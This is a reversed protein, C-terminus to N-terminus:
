VVCELFSNKEIYFISTFEKSIANLKVHRNTFVSTYGYVNDSVSAKPEITKLLKKFNKKFGHCSNTYIELKGSKVIFIREKGSTQVLYEDPNLIKKTLRRAIKSQFRKTWHCVFFLSSKVVSLCTEQAIADRLEDSLQALM